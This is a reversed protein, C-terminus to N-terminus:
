YIFKSAFINVTTYSASFNKSLAICPRCSNVFISIYGWGHLLVCNGQSYKERVIRLHELKELSTTVRCVTECVPMSLAGAVTSIFLKLLKM